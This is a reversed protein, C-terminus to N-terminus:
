RSNKLPNAELRGYFSIPQRNTSTVQLTAYGGTTITLNFTQIEPVDSPKIILDWGGSRRQRLKNSFKTSTFNIGGKTPDMPATFARGFYPLFSAITDKSIKVEYESTLQILRGNMPTATQPRFLFNGANVLSETSASEKDDNDPSRTSACSGAILCIFLLPLITKM